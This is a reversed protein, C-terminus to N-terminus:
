LNNCDSTAPKPHLGLLKRTCSFLLRVTLRQQSISVSVKDKRMLMPLVLAVAANQMSQDYGKNAAGAFQPTPYHARCLQLQM